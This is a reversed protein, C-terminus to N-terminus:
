VARPTQLRNRASRTRGFSGPSGCRRTYSRSPGSRANSRPATRGRCDRTWTGDILAQEAVALADFTAPDTIVQEDLAVRAPEELDGLLYKRLTDQHGRSARM